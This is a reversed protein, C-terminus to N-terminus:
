AKVEQAPMHPASYKATGHKLWQRSLRRATGVKKGVTDSFHQIISRNIDFATKAESKFLCPEKFFRSQAEKRGEVKSFFNKDVPHLISYGYRIVGTESDRESVICVVPEGRAVYYTGDSNYVLKRDKRLYYVRNAM